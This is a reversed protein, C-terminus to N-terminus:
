EVSTKLSDTYWGVTGALNSYSTCYNIQKYQSRATLIASM